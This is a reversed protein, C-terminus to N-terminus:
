YILLLDVIKNNLDINELQSPSNGYDFGPLIKGHREGILIVDPNIAKFDYAFLERFIAFDHKALDLLSGQTIGKIECATSFVNENNVLLLTLYDHWLNKEFGYTGALDVLEHMCSFFRAKAEEFYEDKDYHEMIWAMEHLLKGEEFNRYVILQEIGTMENKRKEKKEM